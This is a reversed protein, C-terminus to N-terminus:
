EHGDYVHSQKNGYNKLSKMFRSLSVIFKHIGLKAVAETLDPGAEICICRAEQSSAAVSFEKELETLGETPILGILM